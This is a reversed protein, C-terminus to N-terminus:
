DKKRHLISGVIVGAKAAAAISEWAHERVYRDVEELTGKAKQTTGQEVESLRAKVGQAWKQARDRVATMRESADHATAAVLSELDHIVVGLDRILDDTTAQKM